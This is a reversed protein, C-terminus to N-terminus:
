RKIVTVAWFGKSVAFEVLKFHSWAPEKHTIGADFVFFRNTRIVLDINLWIFLSKYITDAFLVM